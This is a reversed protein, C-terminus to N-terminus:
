SIVENEILLEKLRKRAKNLNSKSTGETIGLEDAIVKHKLGEFEFMMFIQRYKPTLQDVIAQLNKCEVIKENKEDAEILRTLINSDEDEIDITNTGRDTLTIIGSGRYNDPLGELSIVDRKRHKRFYDISKNKVTKKLWNEYKKKNKITHKNNEFTIFCEQVIDEAVDTKKVIYESSECLSKFLKAYLEGLEDM